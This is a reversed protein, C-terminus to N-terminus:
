RRPPDIVITPKDQASFNMLNADEHEDWNEVRFGCVEDNDERFILVGDSDEQQERRVPPESIEEGTEPDEWSPVPSGEKMEANEPTPYNPLSVSLVNHETDVNLQGNEM